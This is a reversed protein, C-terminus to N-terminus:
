ACDDCIRSSRGLTTFMAGDLSSSGCRKCIVASDLLKEIKAISKESPMVELPALSSSTIPCAGHSVIWTGGVRDCYGMGAVVRGGCINCTGAYKNKITIQKTM